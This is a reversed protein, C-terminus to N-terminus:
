ILIVIIVFLFCIATISALGGLLNIGSACDKCYEDDLPPPLFWLFPLFFIWHVAGGVAENENCRKCLAM